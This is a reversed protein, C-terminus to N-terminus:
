PKSWLYGGMGIALIGVVASLLRSLSSSATLSPQDTRTTMADYRAIQQRIAAETRNSTTKDEEDRESLYEAREVPEAAPPLDASPPREIVVMQLKSRATYNQADSLEANTPYTFDPAGESIPVSYEDGNQLTRVYIEQGRDSLNEYSVITVGQQEIQSRNGMVSSDTDHYLVPQIPFLVPGVLLAIGLVVLAGSLLTHRIM